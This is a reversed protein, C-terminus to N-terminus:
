RHCCLETFLFTVGHYKNTLQICVKRVEFQPLHLVKDCYEIADAVSSSLLQTALRVSMKARQFQIHNRTIKNGLRLGEENQLKDLEVLYKWEIAENNGNIYGGQKAFTNRILKLMHAWDFIAVIKNNGPSQFSSNINDPDMIVGLERFMNVNTSPGDCTLSSVVLGNSELRFFIHSLTCFPLSM